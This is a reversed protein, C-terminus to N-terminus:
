VQAILDFSAIPSQQTLQQLASSLALKEAAANHDPGDKCLTALRAYYEASFGKVKQCEQLVAMQAVSDKQRTALDFEQM